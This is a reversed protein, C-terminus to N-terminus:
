FVEQDDEHCASCCGEAFPSWCNNLLDTALFHSMMSFMSKRIGIEDFMQRMRDFEEKNEEKEALQRLEEQLECDVKALIGFANSLSLGREEVLALSDLVYQYPNRRDENEKTM